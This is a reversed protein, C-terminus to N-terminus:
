GAVNCTDCTIKDSMRPRLYYIESMSIGSFFREFGFSSAQNKTYTLVLKYPMTTEVRVLFTNRLNLATPLAPSPTKTTSIGGNTSGNPLLSRWWVEVAKPTAEDSLQIATIKITPTSRNYPKITAAGIEMIGKLVEPTVAQQQTVLDAVMSSIRGVKKNAEVAQGVEMSGFYLCILIPVMFAFEIAAVGGGDALFRRAPALRSSAGFKSLAQRFM